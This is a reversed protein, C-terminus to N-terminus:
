NNLTLLWNHEFVADVFVVDRFERSESKAAPGTIFGSVCALSITTLLGLFQDM